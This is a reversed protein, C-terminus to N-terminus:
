VLCRSKMELMTVRSNDDTGIGISCKSRITVIEDEVILFQM